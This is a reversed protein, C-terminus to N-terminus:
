SRSRLEDFAREGTMVELQVSIMGARGRGSMEDEDLAILPAVDDEALIPPLLELEERAHEIHAVRREEVLHATLERAM